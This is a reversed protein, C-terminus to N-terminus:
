SLCEAVVLLVLVDAEVLEDERDDDAVADIPNDSPPKEDSPLREVSPFASVTSTGTSPLM